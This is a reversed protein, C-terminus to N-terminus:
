FTQSRGYGYIVSSNIGYTLRRCADGSNGEITTVTSGDCSEVIGVHDTIGDGEWDFFIIDGPSPAYGRSQWRGADKFWQAGTPCYSFKPMMGSEIYGAENACWSVFCACWEVRGNFGYWSWYPQGGVNGIQTRAIGVIDGAGSSIGYLVAQWTSDYRPSLLEELLEVQKPSLGYMTAMQSTTKASQTIYLTRRTNTVTEEKITGDEQEVAVIETYDRDEIRTEFSNIDWFIDKLLQQRKGDLTVVDLPNDPDTTTKVAFVALVDPWRAQSGSRVLEDHPNNAKIEEFRDNYEDNTEAIVERLAPNGDGMDGGTFFIGFASAAVLGVLCIILVAVVAVWGGAAIATVLSKVSAIAMKAFVAIGRAAAKAAMVATRAAMRVSAAAKRAAVQAGKSAVKTGQLASRTGKATARSATKVTRGAGKVTSKSTQKITKKASQKANIAGQKTATKRGAQLTGETAQKASTKQAARKSLAQRSQSVAKSGLGKAHHAATSATDKVGQETKEEAYANSPQQRTKLGVAEEGQSSITQRTKIAAGKLTTGIGSKKQLTKIDKTVERTKITKDM